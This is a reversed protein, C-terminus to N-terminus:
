NIIAKEMKLIVLIMNKIVKVKIMFYQFKSFKTNIRTLLNQNNKDLNIQQEKKFKSMVEDQIKKNNGELVILFM